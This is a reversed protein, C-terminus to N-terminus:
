LPVAVLVVKMKGAAGAGSTAQTVAAQIGKGAAAVAGLNGTAANVVTASSGGEQVIDNLADAGADTPTLTLNIPTGDTDQITIIGQDQSAGAFVETIVGCVAFVLLSTKNFLAPILVSSTPTVGTECDLECRSVILGKDMTIVPELRVIAYGTSHFGIAHGIQANAAPVLTYDNDTSAYVAKGVDTIAFSTIPLIFDGEEIRCTKDGSSGTNNVEEYAMGVFLTSPTFPVLYGAANLGCLGGKYIHTSGAVGYGRMKEDVMRNRQANATLAAMPTPFLLVALVMAAALSIFPEM